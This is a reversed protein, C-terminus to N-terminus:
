APSELMERSTLKRDIQREIIDLMVESIERIANPKIDMEGIRDLHETLMKRATALATQSVLRGAGKRCKDCLLAQASLSFYVPESEQFARGCRACTNLAPLWGGLKVTWLTFYALPIEAKGTRKVAQTALLLLRFNADAAEREPLVAETIESFLSLAVSLGYDRFADLFSEIIECQSIRVLERTEKEYYWIRVYTLRELASGFRSKTKRAGGAVGRMRGMTRSLFSVLRDAEALPYSRLVIAESEHLPM